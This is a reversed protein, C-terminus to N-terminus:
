LNKYHLSYDKDRHLAPCPCPPAPCPLAPCPLAPCPLSDAATALDIAALLQLSRDGYTRKATSSRRQVTLVAVCPHKHLTEGSCFCAM